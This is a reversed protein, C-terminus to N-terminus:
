EGTRVEGTCLEGTIRWYMSRRARLIYYSTSRLSPWCFGPCFGAYRHTCPRLGLWRADFRARQPYTIRVDTYRGVFMEQVDRSCGVLMWRDHRDCMRPVDIRRINLSCRSFRVDLSCIDFLHRVDPSCRYTSIGVFRRRVDVSCGVFMWRVYTSYTHTSCRAFMSRADLSCEVFM